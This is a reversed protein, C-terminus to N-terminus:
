RKCDPSRAQQEAEAKSVKRHLRIAEILQYGITYVPNLATMPEQFITAIRGGRYRRLQKEPLELLNVRDGVVPDKFWIEGQAVKGPPSPVLGMVALSTVSKGSGSEGVIGLTQGRPVQFSVGDVARVLRDNTQFHVQLDRVELVTSDLPENSSTDAHM